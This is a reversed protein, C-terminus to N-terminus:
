CKIGMVTRCNLRFKLWFQIIKVTSHDWYVIFTNKNKCKGGEFHGPVHNGSVHRHDSYLGIVNIFGFHM